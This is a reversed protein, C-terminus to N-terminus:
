KGDASWITNDDFVVRHILLEPKVDDHKMHQLRMQESSMLNLGWAGQTPTSQHPPYHVDPDLKIVLLQAGLLDQFIIAGEVLKIARETRNRLTYSILHRKEFDYAADKFSYSWSV